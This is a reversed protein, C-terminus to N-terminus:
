FRVLIARTYLPHFGQRQVNQQSKSGPQTTVAAVTCGASAAETLRSTLLATQVGRRRKDPLTAAGCLLAVGGGIRMSAGGAPEGELRALYRAFGEAATMDGIAEELVTRSFSEHSPVGQADPAIFGGVVVDLWAEFEEDPSRAVEVDAPVPPLETGPLPRGLVDEFGELRYGRETLFRGIGPAGLSSLEVQLPTDRQAYIVELEALEGPDIPGGFGLGALKNLPSGPAGLTAVGGAIPRHVVELGPRREALAIACAALMDCEAREIRAALETDAFLM